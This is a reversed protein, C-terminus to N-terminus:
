KPPSLPTGLDTWPKADIRCEWCQGSTTDCVVVRANAGARDTSAIQFRGIQPQPVPTPQSLTVRSVLLGLLLSALITATTFSSRPMTVGKM